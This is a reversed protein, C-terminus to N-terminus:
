LWLVTFQVNMVIFIYFRGKKPGIRIECPATLWRGNCGTLAPYTFKADKNM